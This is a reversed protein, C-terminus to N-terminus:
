CFFLIFISIIFLIGIFVYVIKYVFFEFRILLFRLSSSFRLLGRPGIFEIWFLELSSIFGWGKSIFSFPWGSFWFIYFM